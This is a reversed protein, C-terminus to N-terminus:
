TGERALAILDDWGGIVPEAGADQLVAAPAAGWPVGIPRVRAARACAMDSAADGVYAVGVPDPDVGLRALAALVPAPHPKHRDSDELGIVVDLYTGLGFLDLG